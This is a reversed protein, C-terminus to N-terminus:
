PMLSVSVFGTTVATGIAELALRTGVPLINLGVDISLMGSPLVALLDTESGSAGYALKVISSTTNVVVLRSTPIVSSAVLQVYSGTPINTSSASLTVVNNQNVAM